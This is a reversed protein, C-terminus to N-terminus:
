EHISWERTFNLLCRQHCSGDGVGVGLFVIDNFKKHVDLWFCSCGICTLIKLLAMDVVFVLFPRLEFSYQLAPQQRHTWFFESSFLMLTSFNFYLTSIVASSTWPFKHYSIPAIHFKKFLVLGLWDVIKSIMPLSLLFCQRTISSELSLEILTNQFSDCLVHCLTM